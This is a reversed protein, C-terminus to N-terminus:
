VLPECFAGILCPHTVRLISPEGILCAREVTITISGVGHDKPTTCNKMGNGFISWVKESDFISWVKESDFIGLGWRQRWPKLGVLTAASSGRYRLWSPKLAELGARTTTSSGCARARFRSPRRCHAGVSM